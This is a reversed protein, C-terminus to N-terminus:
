SELITKLLYTLYNSVTRNEKKANEKIKEALDKPLSFSITTVNRM